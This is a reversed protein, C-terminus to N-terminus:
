ATKKNKKVDKKSEKASKKSIKEESNKLNKDPKVYIKWKKTKSFPKSAVFNVEQGVKVGVDDHVQYRKTKKVRKKYIKHAVLRTVAVVATKKNKVSVVKGTFIKM